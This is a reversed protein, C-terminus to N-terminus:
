RILSAVRIRHSWLHMVVIAIIIGIFGLVAFSYQYGVYDSMVGALIPGIVWGLNTSSDEITEIETEITQAEAIYNSYEANIAPYALSFFTAAVINILLILYENGVLAMCALALSGALLSFLATSRDGFRETVRGVFWGTILSPAIWAALFLGALYGSHTFTEAFLPGITWYFGSAVNLMLTIVLIPLLRWGLRRWVRMENFLSRSRHPHSATYRTNGGTMALLILYLLIAGGLFVLATIFPSGDIRDAVLFGAIFPALLMGLSIFVQILGFQSSYEKIQSFRNIFDHTGIRYLDFYLGWAAMAILYMWLTTGKWMLLPFVASLIFMIAFIRRFNTNPLIRCLIFDFIAGAISSSGIILGLATGSFGRDSIIIPTIFAIIGDCVSWFFLMLAVAYLIRRNAPQPPIHDLARM